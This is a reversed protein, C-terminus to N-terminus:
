RKGGLTRLYGTGLGKLDAAYVQKVAAAVGTGNQLSRVFRVFRGSGGRSMMYKVLTYGVAATQSPSFTGDSFLDESRALGRVAEAATARMAKISENDPDTQEALVIGTGRAVWEPLRGKDRKLFAGTVHDILNLRMGPSERGAAAGVDQLVVYADEASATVVSHGTMERPTDRRHIVQNFETYGFRDRFVFITLRGRWLQKDRVSFLKRLATAQHEAWEAIEQMRGAAANGFVYFEKSRVFRPRNKSVVRDWLEDTRKERLANFQEPTMRALEAARLEDSTPVLSRMAVKADGGDFKAGELIWTRLSDYFERTIRRNGPPMKQKDQDKAAVRRWITSGDLNGPLVVRGTDSGQMLSEFTAVSFGGRPNRGLHCGACLTVLTPAVQKVFSVKEKGTARAIKVSGPAAKKKKTKKKTKDTAAKLSALPTNVGDGDFAAGQNIWTAITTLQAASLPQGGRPMRQNAAPATLRRMLLSANAKGTVVIAGNAGGRQLGAFTDLRLRGSARTGHCKLCRSALIPAVQKAFSVKAGGANAAPKDGRRIALQRQQIALFKFLGAVARDTKPLKADKIIKNLRGGAGDLLKGADDFKGRGILSRAKGIDRRVRSLERRQKSSLASGADHAGASLLLVATFVAFWGCRTVRATM